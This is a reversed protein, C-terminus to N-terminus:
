LRRKVRSVSTFCLQRGNFKPVTRGSFHADPPAAGRREHRHLRAGAASLHCCSPLMALLCVSPLPCQIWSSCPRRCTSQTSTPTPSRRRKGETASSLPSRPSSPAPSSLLSNLAQTAATQGVKERGERKREKEMATGATVSGSVNDRGM